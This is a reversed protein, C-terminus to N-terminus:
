RPKDTGGKRERPGGTFAQVATAAGWQRRVRSLELCCAERGPDAGVVTENGASRPCGDQGAELVESPQGSRAQTLPLIRIFFRM